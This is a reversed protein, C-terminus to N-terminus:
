GRVLVASRNDDISIRRVQLDASQERMKKAPNGGWRANPPMEEGKMLFSDAALVSREGMTVGYHVFAGVGLTCGAGIATRDSKFGGDEQSHCQIVSGVNLTCNDGIATFTRETMYVGDDFVRRGIRVGLMRWIVNKLPTGNFLNLYADASIKWFREHRWFARDYISCGQPRLAQLHRFLRDVLVFYVVTFVVVAADAVGGALAGTPELIDSIALYLVIVALVFIWRVLLFLAMTITNHINKAWLRRRMEDASGLDLQKDREVSRPIEFGPSGLMGVDERVPGDLPVMLKTALLCNEGTRGQAPYAVKNGLFNHAGITVRSLRFSTNSYDANIISLGDAIVTGSGVASLFPTDHQVAEGFNSGTQEVDRLDYGIWRLYHVIYSSDGFLRHYFKRNTMRAIARQAWYHFGYLPYVKDPTIFLNLLRPVTGVFLLGVLVAGFFLVGSIVLVD